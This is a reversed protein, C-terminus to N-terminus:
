GRPGTPGVMLTPRTWIVVVSWTAVLRFAALSSTVEAMRCPPTTIKGAAMLNKLRKKYQPYREVFDKTNYTNGMSFRIDPNVEILEIHAKLQEAYENMSAQYDHFYGIDQHPGTIIYLINEQAMVRSPMVVLLGLAITLIIRELKM